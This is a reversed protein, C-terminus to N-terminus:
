RFTHVVVSTFSAFAVGYAVALTAPLFAPSYAEYKTVDFLGNTIVQTFNYSLGTNDFVVSSSIPLYSMFFSNTVSPRFQFYAKLPSLSCSVIFSPHWFGFSSSLALVQIQRPGGSTLLNPAYFITDLSTFASAFRSPQFLLFGHVLRVHFHGHWSGYVHRVLRQRCCKNTRDLVGLQFCQPWDLPLGACHVM